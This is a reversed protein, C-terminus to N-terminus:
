NSEAAAWWDAAESGPADEPTEVGKSALGLVKDAANVRALGNKNREMVDILADVAREAHDIAKQKARVLKQLNEREITQLALRAAESLADLFPKQHNWGAGVLQGDENVKGKKYFNNETCIKNDGRFLEALPRGEVYHHQVIRDIADRQKASLVMLMQALEYTAYGAMRNPLKSFSM